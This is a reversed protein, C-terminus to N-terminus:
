RGESAWYDMILKQTADYVGLGLQDASKLLSALKMAATAAPISRSGGTIKRMVVMPRLAREAANNTGDIQEDWLFRTLDARHRQLRKCLRRAHVHDPVVAILQDLRAELRRAQRQYQAAGLEPCRKKLRLAEKCWRLLKRSLPCDAFTADADRCEKIERMLHALCRQKPASLRHYANFFDCSVTGGFARGLLKRPVKGGRSRDLHYLTFTPDTFAWLWFNKGDIRWGTEDVHVHGSARMRRILDQYKGDLWRSLRKIQQVIGGPSVRLEPLDALLQAIQRFPLRHRVRLIAATTLANIGLQAQPLSAAPPQEPARSEIRKGCNPCHGSHTHYCTTKVTSRILDEVVRKHRRLKALRCNCRPCLPQQRDDTALPVDQHHDIRRPMPRLAAPHGVRRGPRRRRRPPRNAKVWPPLARAPQPLPETKLQERLEAVRVKLTRNEAALEACRRKLEALRRRSDDRQLLQQRLLGNEERLRQNEQWLFANGALLQGGGDM